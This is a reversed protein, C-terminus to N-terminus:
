NKKRRKFMYFPIYILPAFSLLSVDHKKADRILGCATTFKYSDTVTINGDTASVNWYYVVDCEETFNNNVCCYTGNSLIDSISCYTQWNSNNTANSSFTLTLSNITYGIICKADSGWPHSLGIDVYGLVFKGANISVPCPIKANTSLFDYTIHYTIVGDSIIGLTAQMTRDVSEETENRWILVFRNDGLYCITHMSISWQASNNIYTFNQSFTIEDGNAINGITVVCTIDSDSVKRTWDILFRTENVVDLEYEAVTQLNDIYTYRTGYTIATGSVTGVQAYGYDMLVDAWIVVIATDNLCKVQMNNEYPAETDVTYFSGISSSLGSVVGITSNLSGAGEQDQFVLVYHTENFVDLGRHYFNSEEGHIQLPSGLSISNLSEVRGIKTYMHGGCEFFDVDYAFVVYSDNLAKVEVNHTINDNIEIVNGYEIETDSVIRFVRALADVSTYQSGNSYFVVGWTDNLMTVALVDDGGSVISNNFLYPVGFEIATGNSDPGFNNYAIDVCTIIGYDYTKVDLEGDAPRPNFIRIIFANLVVTITYNTTSWDSINFSIFGTSNATYNGYTTFNQLVTYNSGEAFGSINFYINGPTTNADFQLLIDGVDAGTISQNLFEMTININNPSDIYFSTTNFLVHDIRVGVYDFYMEQKFTYKINEVYINNTQDMIIDAKLGNTLFLLICIILLVFIKNM